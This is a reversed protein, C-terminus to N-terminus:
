KSFEREREMVKKGEDRGKEREGERKRESDGGPVVCMNQNLADPTTDVLM